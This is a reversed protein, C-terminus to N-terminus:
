CALQGGGYGIALAFIMHWKLLRYAWPSSDIYELFLLTTPLYANAMHIEDRGFYAWTLAYGLVPVTFGVAFVKARGHGVLAVVLMGMVLLWGCILMLLVLPNTFRESAVIFAVVFINALLRPLGYQFKVRMALTIRGAAGSGIGVIM